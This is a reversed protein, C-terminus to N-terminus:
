WLMRCRCLMPPSPAYPRTSNYDLAGVGRQITIYMPVGQVRKTSSHITVRDTLEFVMLTVHGCGSCVGLGLFYKKAALAETSTSM